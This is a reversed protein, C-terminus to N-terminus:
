GRFAERALDYGEWNDVGAGRLENLFLSDKSLGSLESRRVVVLDDEKTERGEAYSVVAVERMEFSKLIHFIDTLETMDSFVSSVQVVGFTYGSAKSRFVTTSLEYWRHTDIDLNECVVEFDSVGGYKEFVEYVDEQELISYEKQTIKLENLEEVITM